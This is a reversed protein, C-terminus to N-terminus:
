VTPQTVPGLSPPAGRHAHGGPRRSTHRLIWVACAALVILLAAGVGVRLLARDILGSADANAQQLLLNAQATIEAREGAVQTFIEARERAVDGFTAERQSALQAFIQDRQDAVDRVIEQHEKAVIASVMKLMSAVSEAGLSDRILLESTWRVRDLLTDNMMEIRADLQTLRDETSGIFARAGHEEGGLARSMAVSASPRAFTAATIPHAEAWQEVQSRRKAVDNSGFVLVGLRDSERAMERGAREVFVYAEGFSKRGPGERAFTGTQLALAWLDALAVLPDANLTAAQVDPITALGWSIAARRVNPDETSDYANAVAEEVMATERRGLEIVRQRLEAISM